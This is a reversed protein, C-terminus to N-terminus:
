ASRAPPECDRSEMQSRMAYARLLLILLLVGTAVVAFPWAASGSSRKASCPWRSKWTPASPRSWRSWCTACRRGTRDGAAPVCGDSRGSECRARCVGELRKIEESETAGVSRVPPSASLNSTGARRGGQRSRDASRAGSATIHGRHQALHEASPEEIYRAETVAVRPANDYVLDNLAALSMRSADIEERARQMSLFTTESIVAFAIGVLVVLLAGWRFRALRMLVSDTLREAGGTASGANRAARSLGAPL